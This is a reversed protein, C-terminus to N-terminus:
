GAATVVLDFAVAARLVAGRLLEDALEGLADGVSGVSGSDMGQSDEALRGLRCCWQFAGKLRRLAGCVSSM